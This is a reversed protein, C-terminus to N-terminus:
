RSIAATNQRRVGELAFGFLKQRESLLEDEAFFADLADAVKKPDVIHEMADKTNSIMHVLAPAVEHPSVDEGAIRVTGQGDVIVADLACAAFGAPDKIVVVRVTDDEPTGVM